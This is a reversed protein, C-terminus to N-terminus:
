VPAEACTTSVRTVCIRSSANDPMSPTSVIEDFLTLPRADTVMSNVSERSMSPAAFSTRPATLRTTLRKGSSASGGCTLLTSLSASGIMQSLMLEVPM